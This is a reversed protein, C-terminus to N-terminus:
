SKVLDGLLKPVPPHFRLAPNVAEGRDTENPSDERIKKLPKGEYSKKKTEM